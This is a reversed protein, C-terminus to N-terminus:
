MGPPRLSASSYLDKGGTGTPSGPSSYRASHAALTAYSSSSVLSQLSKALAWLILTVLNPIMSIMGQDYGYLAIAKSSFLM